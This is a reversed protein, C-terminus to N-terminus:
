SMSILTGDGRAMIETIKVETKVKGVKTPQSLGALVDASLYSPQPKGAELSEIEEFSNVAFRGYSGSRWQGLGIYQGYDLVEEILNRKIGGPAMVVLQFTLLTGAPILDSRTLAVRPGQATQARLPRELWETPEPIYIRRPMVFVYRKFKDQLQKLAGHQKMTRASECIFGKVMYDYIFHGKADKMFGTWGKEEITQVTEVEELAKAEADEQSIIGDEVADFVKSAIFTKYIDQNKPVTGLQPELLELTIDYYTKDM